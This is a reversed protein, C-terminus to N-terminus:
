EIQIDFRALIEAPTAYGPPLHFPIGTLILFVPLAFIGYTNGFFVILLNKNFGLVVVRRADFRM